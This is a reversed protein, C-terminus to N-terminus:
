DEQIMGILKLCSHMGTPHTGAARLGYGTTQKGPPDGDPPPEGDLPPEKMRPPNEM